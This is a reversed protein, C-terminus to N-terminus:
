SSAHATTGEPTTHSVGVGEDLQADAIGDDSGDDLVEEDQFLEEESMDAELEGLQQETLYSDWPDDFYEQSGSGDSADDVERWGEADFDQRSDEEITGGTLGLLQAVNGPPPPAGNRRKAASLENPGLMVHKRGRPTDCVTNWIKSWMHDMGRMTRPSAFMIDVDFYPALEQKIAEATANAQRRSVIDIKTVVITYRISPRQAKALLHLLKKDAPLLKRSRSDILHFVHRLSDRKSLYDYIIDPFHRVKAAPCGSFGLGPTDVMMFHPLGTRERNIEYFNLSRTYARTKSAPAVQESASLLANIMSSKGSNVRGIFVVEPRQSGWDGPAAKQGSNLRVYQNAAGRSLFHITMEDRPVGLLNMIECLRLAQPVLRAKSFWRILQNFSETLFLFRRNPTSAYVDAICEEKLVAEVKLAVQHGHATLNRPANESTAQLYMVSCELLSRLRRIGALSAMTGGIRQQLEALHTAASYAGVQALANAVYRLTEKGCPTESDPGAALRAAEKHRKLQCLAVACWGRGDGEPDDLGLAVLRGVDQMRLYSAVLAKVAAAQRRGKGSNDRYPMAPATPRNALEKNAKMTSLTFAEQGKELYQVPLPSDTLISLSEAEAESTPLALDTEDSSAACAIRFRRLAKAYAGRLPRRMHRSAFLGFLSWHLAQSHCCAQLEHRQRVSVGGVPRGSSVAAVKARGLPRVEVFPQSPVHGPPPLLARKVASPSAM